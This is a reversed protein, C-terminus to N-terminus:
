GPSNSKAANVFYAVTRKLGERWDVAPQFGLERRALSIDAGSHLVDGPRPPGFQPDFLKGLMYCIEHCLDFLNLTQGCGVNYVRGSVGPKHAALLNADVVNSVHVFDRSQLGDGFIIPRRGELLASVFLPIVASYPSNPDQREGF